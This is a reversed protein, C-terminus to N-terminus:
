DLEGAARLLSLFGNIESETFSLSTLFERRETESMLYLFIRKTSAMHSRRLHGGDRIFGRAGVTSHSYGDEHIFVGPMGEVEKCGEGCSKTM